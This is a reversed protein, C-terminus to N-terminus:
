RGDRAGRGLQFDTQQKNHVSDGIEDLSKKDLGATIYARQVYPSTQEIHRLTEATVGAKHSAYDYAAALKAGGRGLRTLAEIDNQGAAAMGLVEMVAHAKERTEAAREAVDLSNGLACAKIKAAMNALNEPFAAKYGVAYAATLVLSPIKRNEPQFTERTLKAEGEVAALVPSSSGPYRYVRSIERFIADDLVLPRHEMYIEYLM